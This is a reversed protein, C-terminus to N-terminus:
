LSSRLTQVQQRVQLALRLTNEFDAQVDQPRDLAARLDKLSKNTQNILLVYTELLHYYNNLDSVLQKEKEAGATVDEMLRRIQSQAVSSFPTHGKPELKVAGFKFAMSGLTRNLEDETQKLLDLDDPTQHGAVIKIVDGVATSVEKIVAGNKVDFLTVALKYYLPTEQQLFALIKLIINEGKEVASRFEERTRAKELEGIVTKLLPIVLQLGPIPAVSLFGGITDLSSIFSGASNQVQEVSKGEALTVLLDTYRTITQLAILRAGAADLAEPTKLVEELEFTRKYPPAKPATRVQLAKNELVDDSYVRLVRTAAEQTQIVADQYGRLELQPLTHYCGSLM